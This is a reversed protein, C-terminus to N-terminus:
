VAAKSSSMAGSFRTNVERDVESGKIGQLKQLCELAKVAVERSRRKQYHVKAVVSSHKQDECLVRHEKDDLADLSQTEVIQRYRTPHIYKGIADFVLKSMENGLKSHQKGSKTVLVFDCQPKLLPRVFTIYGDLIQMSTDTLIVSDFGYKGATKFTKQDIFGGNEKAAKVMEVTLYQYTMPRSGKVKIFLYTALFKTAFTLDSPNVQGPDNQCTKVTQEYRPLHFSVVEFLEEMTAWHGRAELTEVDLDQTWQLRMMKAVTKRARKIYLETASLKRLVGDSAGNVKRFDILESIADIYGLRGGLGLKCEIQQAPRDKKYGGGSGALWTTFQEGIQSSSSFSPMSRAGPKSRTNSSSVDDVVTSSACSKTPVKSSNAALKSDVRPKEDFYFFWSHKNYVHKRCGRQSQFGEHECLHIPCHYLSDADDKEL